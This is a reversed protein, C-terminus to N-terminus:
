PKGTTLSVRSLLKKRKTHMYKHSSLGDLNRSSDRPVLYYRIGLKWAWNSHRAATPMEVTSELRTANKRAKVHNRRKLKILHEISM